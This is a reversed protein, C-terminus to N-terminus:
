TTFDFGSRSEVILTIGLSHLLNRLDQAPPSPLLIAPNMKTGELRALNAYDLVQGIALRVYERANSAKAEIVLKLDPVWFDPKLTGKCDAIMFNHNFPTHGQSILYKGFKAQLEYEVLNILSDEQGVQSKTLSIFNPPSWELNEGTVQMQNPVDSRPNKQSSVPILNFVFVKRLSGKGIDPALKEFYQPDGLAFRGMYTCLGDKSEILHIPLLRENARILGSNSRSLKQDGKIGQGTYHFSGDAQFGQWRDYGFQHNSKEDHFLLFDSKNNASTMGHRFSGGFLKHLDSRKFSEGLLYPFVQRGAEKDKLM